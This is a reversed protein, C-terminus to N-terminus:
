DIIEVRWADKGEFIWDLAYDFLTDFAATHPILSVPKGPRDGLVVEFERGGKSVMYGKAPSDPKTICFRIGAPMDDRAVLAHSLKTETNM